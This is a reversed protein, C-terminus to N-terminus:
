PSASATVDGGLGTQVAALVAPSNDLRWDTEKNQNFWVLAKVRPLANDALMNTVWTAKDGGSSTSAVEVIWVPQPGLATVRAYPRAFIQQFSQWQSWSQSTGWNFGDLGLVDVYASGPYYNEMANAPTNPEDTVNPCWVWRVNDAGQQRFVDVMHRWAKVFLTPDGNWPEWNGNMEPFPRVYVTGPTAKVGDAFARLIGDYTGAAIGALSQGDPEWTILPLRGGAMASEVMSVDYPTSWSMYWHVIDLRRGIESELQYVPTMGDWVGGKTYAGFMPRVNETSLPATAAPDGATTGCATLALMVTGLLAIAALRSAGSGKRRQEDPGEAHRAM